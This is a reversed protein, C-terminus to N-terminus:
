QWRELIKKWNKMFITHSFNNVVYNRIKAASFQDETRLFDDIAKQLSQKSQEPFVIGTGEKVTEEAGGKNYAIVPTGCAMAELPVLGFDEHPPFIFARAQSYLSRLEADSVQGQFEINPGAYRKIKKYEPGDGAVKLPLKNETFCQVALDIRKYPVLHGACLFFGGGKKEPYFNETDVPPYIVESPQNYFRRIREQVEMSITYFQTVRSNSQLDWKKLPQSLSSWLPKFFKNKFYLHPMWLYRMPTFVYSLHVSGPPSIVGKAVCHHLSIILDYGKLDLKQVARPYLPLGMRWYSSLLPIKNLQSAYVKYGRTLDSLRVDKQPRYFLTFIDADPVLPLLAKLVREGGRYTILWDTVIATKMPM